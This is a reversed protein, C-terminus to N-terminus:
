LIVRGGPLADHAELSHAQINAVMQRCRACWVYVRGRPDFPPLDPTM